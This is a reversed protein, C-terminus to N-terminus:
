NFPIGALGIIDLTTRTLFNFVELGKTKDATSGLQGLTEALECGKQWFIPVLEKIHHGAFAPNLIRRQRRHEDGEVCILGEGTIRRM